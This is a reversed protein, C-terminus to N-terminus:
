ERNVTLEPVAGPYNPSWCRWDNTETRVAIRAMQRLDDVAIAVLVSASHRSLAQGLRGLAAERAKDHQGFGSSAVVFRVGHIALVDIKSKAMWEPRAASSRTNRMAPM